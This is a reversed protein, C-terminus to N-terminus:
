ATLCLVKVATNAPGFGAVGTYFYLGSKHVKNKYAASLNLFQM